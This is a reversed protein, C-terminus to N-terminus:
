QKENETKLNKLTIVYQHCNINLTILLTKLIHFIVNKQQQQQQQKLFFFISPFIMSGVAFRAPIGVITIAIFKLFFLLAPILSQM